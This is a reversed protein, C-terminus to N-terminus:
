DKRAALRDCVLEAFEVLRRDRGRVACARETAAFALTLTTRGLWFFALLAVAAAALAAALGPLISAVEGLVTFVTLLVADFSERRAHEGFKATSAALWAQLPGSAAALVFALALLVVAWNLKRADREFAVRVSALQALPVTEMADGGHRVLRNAYLTLRSGRLAGSAVEYDALPQELSM